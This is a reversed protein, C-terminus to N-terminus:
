IHILSLDEYESRNGLIEPDMGVLSVVHCWGERIRRLQGSTVVRARCAAEMVLPRAMLLAILAGQGSGIIM